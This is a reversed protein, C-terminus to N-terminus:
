NTSGVTAEWQRRARAAATTATATTVCLNRHPSHRPFHLTLYTLAAAGLVHPWLDYLPQSRISVASLISTRLGRDIAAAKWTGKEGVRYFLWFM